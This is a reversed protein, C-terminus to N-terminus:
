PRRRLPRGEGCPPPPSAMVMKGETIAEAIELSWVEWLPSEGKREEAFYEELATWFAQLRTESVQAANKDRGLYFRQQARKGSRTLKWGLDRRYQGSLDLTAM